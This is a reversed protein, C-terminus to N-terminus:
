STPLWGMRKGIEEWEEKRLSLPPLERWGEISAGGSLPVRAIGPDTKPDVKNWPVTKKSEVNSHGRKM